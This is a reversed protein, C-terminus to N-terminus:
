LPMKEEPIITKILLQTPGNILMDGVILTNDGEQIKLPVYKGDIGLMSQLTYDYDLEVTKGTLNVYFKTGKKLISRPIYENSYGNGMLVVEIDM